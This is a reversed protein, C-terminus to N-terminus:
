FKTTKSTKKSCLPKGDAVLHGQWEERAQIILLNQGNTMEQVTSKKKRIDGYNSFTVTSIKHDDQVTTLGSFSSQITMEALGLVGFSHDSLLDKKM